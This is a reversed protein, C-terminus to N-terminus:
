RKKEEKKYDTLSIYKKNVKLYKKRGLKYVIKKNYREETKIYKVGGEVKEKKEEIEKLLNFLKLNIINNNPLKEMYQNDKFINFITNDIKLEFYNSKERVIIDHLYKKKNEDINNYKFVEVVREKNLITNFISVINEYNEDTTKIRFSFDDSMNEYNEIVFNILPKIINYYNNINKETLETFTNETATYKYIYLKQNNVVYLIKYTASDSRNVGSSSERIKGILLVNDNEKKPPQTLQTDYRPFGNKYFDFKLNEEYFINKIANNSIRNNSNIINIFRNFLEENNSM